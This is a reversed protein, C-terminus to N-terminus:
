DSDENFWPPVKDPQNWRLKSPSDDFGAEDTKDSTDSKHKRAKTNTSRNKKGTNDKKKPPDFKQDHGKDTSRKEGNQSNDEERLSNEDLDAAPYDIEEEEADIESSDVNRAHQNQQKDLEQRSQGFAAEDTTSDSKRRAMVINQSPESSPVTPLIKASSSKLLADLNALELFHQSLCHDLPFIYCLKVSV